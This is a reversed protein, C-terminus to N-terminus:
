LSILKAMNKQTIIDLIVMIKFKADYSMSKKANKEM